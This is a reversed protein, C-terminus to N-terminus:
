NELLEPYYEKAENILQEETYQEYALTLQEIAYTMLDAVDMGDVIAEALDRSLKLQLDSLPKTM